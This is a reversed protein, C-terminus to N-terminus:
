ALLKELRIRTIKAQEGAAIRLETDRDHPLREQLLRLMEDGTKGTACVIFIFGFKDEYATNGNALAEIVDATAGQAGKQEEGAWASTSAFKKRLSEVDGIRPHHSFAELWDHPGCAAWAEDSRLYLDADGSFPRAAVMGEAWKRSGCCRLFVDLAEEVPLANLAEITM